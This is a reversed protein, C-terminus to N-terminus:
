PARSALLLHGAAGSWFLVHVNSPLMLAWPTAWRVHRLQYLAVPKLTPAQTLPNERSLGKSFKWTPVKTGPANGSIGCSAPCLQRALCSMEPHTCLGLSAVDRCGSLQAVDGQLCQRVAADQDVRPRGTPKVHCEADQWRNGCMGGVSPSGGLLLKCKTGHWANAYWEFASCDDRAECLQQCTSRDADGAGTNTEFADAGDASVCYNNYQKWVGQAICARPAPALMTRRVAKAVTSALMTTESTGIMETDGPDSLQPGSASQSSASSVVTPVSQSSASSMATPANSASAPAGPHTPVRSPAMTPTVTPLSTPEETPTLSPHRTPVETPTFSPCPTPSDTPTWTPVLSPNFSPVQSVHLSTCRAIQNLLRRAEVPDGEPKPVHM